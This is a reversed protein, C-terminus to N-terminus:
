GGTAVVFTCALAFLTVACLMLTAQTDNMRAGVRGIQAIALFSGFWVAFFVAIAHVISITQM